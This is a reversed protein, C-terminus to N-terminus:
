SDLEKSTGELVLQFNVHNECRLLTMIHLLISVSDSNKQVRSFYFLTSPLVPPGSSSLKSAFTFGQDLIELL